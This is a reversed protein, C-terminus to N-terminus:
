TWRLCPARAASVSRRRPGLGGGGSARSTACSRRSFARSRRSSSFAFRQRSIWFFTEPISPIGRFAGLLSPLPEHLRGLSECGLDADGGGRAGQADRARGDVSVAQRARGGHRRRCPGRGARQGRALALLREGHE